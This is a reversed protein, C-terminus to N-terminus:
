TLEQQTSRIRIAHVTIEMMECFRATLRRAQHAGDAITTCVVVPTGDNSLALIEYTGPTSM